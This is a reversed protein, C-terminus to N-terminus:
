KVSPLHSLKKEPNSFKGLAAVIVANGIAFGEQLSIAGDALALDLVGYASAAGFALALVWKPISSKKGDMLDELKKRVFWLGLRVKLPPKGPKPPCPGHTAIMAKTLRRRLRRMNATPNEKRVKAWQLRDIQMWRDHTMKSM